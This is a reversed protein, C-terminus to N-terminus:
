RGAAILKEDLSCVARVAKWEDHASDAAARLGPIGGICTGQELESHRSSKHEISLVMRWLHDSGLM